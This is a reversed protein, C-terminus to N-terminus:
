IVEATRHRDRGRPRPFACPVDRREDALHRGHEREDVAKWPATGAELDKIIDATVSQYLDAIKMSDEERRRKWFHFRRARLPGTLIIDLFCGRSIARTNSLRRDEQRPWFAKRDRLRPSRAPPALNTTVDNKIVALDRTHDNLIKTHDALTSTVDAIDDKIAVIDEAVAAFGRDMKGELDAFGRKVTSHGFGRSMFIM